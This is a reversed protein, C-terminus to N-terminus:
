KKLLNKKIQIEAMLSDAFYKVGWSNIRYPNYEGGFPFSGPLGGDIIKFQSKFQITKLFDNMKVAANFFRFDKTIEYLKFWCLALQADGTVCTSESAPHWESDFRGALPRHSQEFKHLLGRASKQAALLLDDRKIIQWCTLLGEITYGLTHTLPRWNDQYSNDANAFWGNEQQFSLVFDLNKQASELYKKTPRLLHADLLAGSVKSDYVRKMGLYNNKAWSGDNEQVSVIWDCAKLASALYKSEKTERYTRLLGHIIQGSNFVSPATLRGVVGGPFSGNKNQLTLEFDSAKIAAQYAQRDHSLRAYDFLTPILYGTVEPYAGEIKLRGFRFALRSTIGGNKQLKQQNIVWAIAQDLRKKSFQWSDPIENIKIKYMPQLNIYTFIPNMSNFILNGLGIITTLYNSM